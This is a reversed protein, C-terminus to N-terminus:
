PKKKMLLLLKDLVPIVNGSSKLVGDLSKLLQANGRGGISGLNTLTDYRGGVEGYLIGNIVRVIAQLANRTSEAWNVVRPELAGQPTIDQLSPHEWPFSKEIEEFIRLLTGLGESYEIRNEEKYFSGELLLIRLPRNYKEIFIMQFFSRLFLLGLLHIPAERFTIGEPLPLSSPDLLSNMEKVLEDKRRLDLFQRFKEDIRSRWFQKFASFWDEGGGRDPFQYNIKGTVIKVLNLLPIEGTFSRIAQLSEEIRPVLDKSAHIEKSSLENESEKFLVLAKVLVSPIPDKLAYVTEAFRVFVEAVRQFPCPVPPLDSVPHFLSTFKELPFYVLETLRYLFRVDLYMKSKENQPIVSLIDDLRNDLLHRIDADSLEEVPPIELSSVTEFIFSPDMHYHHLAILYFPDLEQELRKTTEEMELAGLFALFEGRRNGGLQSVLPIWVSLANKLKEIRETFPPLFVSKKIDLIGPAKRQISIGIERLLHEELIEERTRRSILVQIWLLIKRFFGLRQFEKDFDVPEEDSAAPVLPVDSLTQFDKLKELLDKREQHTLEQVLQDFVSRKESGM